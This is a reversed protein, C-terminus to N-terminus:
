PSCLLNLYEKIKHSSLHAQMWTVAIFYSKRELWSIKTDVARSAAFEPDRECVSLQPFAGRSTGTQLHGVEKISVQSKARRSVISLAHLKGRSASSFNTNRYDQSPHRLSDRLNSLPLWPLHGTHHHIPCQDSALAHCNTRMELHNPSCRARECEQPSMM